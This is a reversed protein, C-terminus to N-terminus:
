ITRDTGVYGPIDGRYGYAFRFGQVMWRKLLGVYFQDAARKAGIMMTPYGQVTDSIDNLRLGNKMALAYLGIMEGAGAGFITAGLIRGRRHYLAIEGTTRHEVRARDIREFPFQIREFPEGAADLQAASRGVAALEPDTFVVRPIVTQEYKQLPLRAMANVAAARSMNEAVHTFNPAMTVAGSALIHRQNTRCWDDVPIGDVGCSIGAAPLNLASVSPTRGTAVLLQDVTIKRAQGPGAITVEIGRASAAVHSITQGVHLTVDESRLAREVAIAAWPELDTLISPSATVVTVQSGLRAFAQAMEAGVPGCGLIALHAPLQDLEFLNDTTLYPVSELGKIQPVFPKSGTAIIASRFGVTMTRGQRSLELNREDLFRATAQLPHIGLEKLYSPSEHHEYIDRRTERVSDMVTPFDVTLGGIGIGPAPGNRVLSAMRALHLLAKSPICGTWTCEGGLRNREVLITRGGLAACGAAAVLGAAGGGIVAVDVERTAMDSWRKLVDRQM